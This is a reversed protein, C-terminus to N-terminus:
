RRSNKGSRSLFLAYYPYHFYSFLFALIVYVVTATSGSGVASNYRYSLVAAGVSFSIVFLLYVLVVVLSYGVSDQEPSFTDSRGLVANAVRSIYNSVPDM